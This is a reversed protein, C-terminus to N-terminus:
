RPLKLEDAPDGAAPSEVSAVSRDLAENLRTRWGTPGPVEREERALWRLIPSIRVLDPDSWEHVVAAVQRFADDAQASPIRVTRELLAPMLGPGADRLLGPRGLLEVLPGPGIPAGSMEAQLMTREAPAVELDVAPLERGEVRFKGDRAELRWSERLALLGAMPVEYDLVTVTVGAEGPPIDLGGLVDTVRREDSGGHDGTPGVGARQVVLPSTALELRVSRPDTHRARLELRRSGPRDPIPRSVLALSLGAQIERGQLVARIRAAAALSGEDTASSEVADLLARARAHDRDALARDITEFSAVLDEAVPEYSPAKAACGALLWVLPLALAGGSRPARIM